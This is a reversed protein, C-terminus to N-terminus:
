PISCPGVGSTEGVTGGDRRGDTISGVLKRFREYFRAEDEPTPPPMDEYRTHTKAAIRAEIATRRATMDDLTKLLTSIARAWKDPPDDGETSVSLLTDLKLQLAAETKNLLDLTIQTTDTMLWIYAWSLSRPDM